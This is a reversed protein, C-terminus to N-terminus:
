EEEGILMGIERKITLSERILHESEDLDGRLKAISGLITLSDVMGERDDLERLIVLCERELRETEVFDERTVAIEVLCRLSTAQGKLHNIERNIILSEQFLREAEDLYGNEKVILGLNNLSSSQGIQAGIYREIVLSERFLREADALDGRDKAIVGLNGLSTAEGKRYNIERCIVLSEQFLQEADALDGRHKAVAGLNGLSTAEMLRDSIEERSITLSEKHLREAEALDGQLMLVNALNILSPVEGIERSITLSERFLREAEALDGRTQAILGLGTLAGVEEGLRSPAKKLFKLAEHYLREAEDLDGAADANNGLKVLCKAINKHDENNLSTKLAQSFYGGALELNGSIGASVGIDILQEITFQFGNSKMVEALDISEKALLEKRTDDNEKEVMKLKKELEINMKQMDLKEAYLEGIVEAVGSVNVTESINHKVILVRELIRQNSETLISSAIELKIKNWEQLKSHDDIELLISSFQVAMDKRLEENEEFQKTRLRTRISRMLFLSVFGALSAVVVAYKSNSLAAFAVLGFVAEVLKSIGDFKAGAALQDDDLVNTAMVKVYQM